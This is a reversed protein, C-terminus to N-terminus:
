LLVGTTYLAGVVVIAVLLLKWAVNLLIRGVLVVAALAVLGVLLKGLPTALLGAALVLTM